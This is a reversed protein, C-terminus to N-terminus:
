LEEVKKRAGKETYLGKNEPLLQFRKIAIGMYGQDRLRKIDALTTESPKPFVGRKIQILDYLQGGGWILFALIFLTAFVEGIAM